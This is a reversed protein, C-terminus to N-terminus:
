FKSISKRYSVCSTKLAIELRFALFTENGLLLTFWGMKNYKHWFLSPLFFFGLWFGKKKQNNNLPMLTFGVVIATHAQPFGLSPCLGAPSLAGSPPLDAVAPLWGPMGSACMQMPCRGLPMCWTILVFTFVNPKPPFSPSSLFAPPFVSGMMFVLQLHSENVIESSGFFKTTFM